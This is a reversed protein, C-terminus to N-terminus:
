GYNMVGLNKIINHILKKDFHYEFIKGINVFPLHKLSFCKIIKQAEIPKLVGRKKFDTYICFLPTNTDASLLEALGNRVAIIGKCYKSLAYAEEFNLFCHKGFSLLKKDLLDNYFIDFGLSNLEKTLDLWIGLDLPNGSQTIPLIFIFNNLNLGIKKIKKLMQKEVKQSVVPHIPNSTEDIGWYQKIRNYYNIDYQKAAIIDDELKIFYKYPLVLYFKKNKEIFDEQLFMHNDEIFVSDFEPCILNLLSKHYKKTCIFLPKKTHHKKIIERINCLSLYTEGSCSVLVYFADYDKNIYKKCKKLFNIKYDKKFYNIGLISKQSILGNDFEKIIPIGFLFVEKSKIGNNFKTQASLINFVFEQLRSEESFSDKYLKLGLLKIIRTNNFKENNYIKM